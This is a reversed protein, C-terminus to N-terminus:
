LFRDFDSRTLDTSYVCCRQKHDVMYNEHVQSLPHASMTCNNHPMSIVWQIEVYDFVVVVRTLIKDGDHSSVDPWTRLVFSLEHLARSCYILAM